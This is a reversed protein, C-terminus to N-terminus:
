RIAVIKSDHICFYYGHIVEKKVRIRLLTNNWLCCLACCLDIFPKCTQLQVACCLDIFPKCTQLALPQINGNDVSVQMMELGSPKNVSLLEKSSWVTYCSYLHDDVTSIVKYLNSPFGHYETISTLNLRLNYHYYVQHYATGFHSLSCIAVSNHKYHECWNM